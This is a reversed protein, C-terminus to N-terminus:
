TPLSDVATQRRRILTSKFLHHKVMDPRM